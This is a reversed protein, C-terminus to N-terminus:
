FPESDAIEGVEGVEAVDAPECVIMVHADAVDSSGVPAPQLLKLHVTVLWVDVVMEPLKVNSHRAAAVTLPVAVAVIVPSATARVAWPVAAPCPTGALQVNVSVPLPVM